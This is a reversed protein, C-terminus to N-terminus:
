ESLGVLLAEPIVPEFPAYLTAFDGVASEFRQLTDLAAQKVAFIQSADDSQRAVLHLASEAEDMRPTLVRRRAAEVWARLPIDTLCELFIGVARANGGPLRRASTSM